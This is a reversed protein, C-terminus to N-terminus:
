IVKSEALLKEIGSDGVHAFMCTKMQIQFATRWLTSIPLHLYEFAINIELVNPFNYHSYTCV